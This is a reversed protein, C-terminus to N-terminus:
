KGKQSYLSPQRVIVTFYCANSAYARECTTSWILLISHTKRYKAAQALRSIQLMQIKAMTSSHHQQNGLKSIETTLRSFRSLPIWQNSLTPVKKYAPGYGSILWDNFERGNFDLQVSGMAWVFTARNRLVLCLESRVLLISSCFLKRSQQM